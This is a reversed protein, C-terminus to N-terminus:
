GRGGEAHGGGGEDGAAAPDEGGLGFGDSGKLLGRWFGLQAFFFGFGAGQRAFPDGEGGFIVAAKHGSQLGDSGIQDLVEKPTAVTALGHHDADVLGCRDPHVVLYLGM